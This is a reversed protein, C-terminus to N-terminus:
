ILRRKIDRKFKHKEQYIELEYHIMFRARTFIMWAHRNYPREARRLFPFPNTKPTTVQSELSPARTSIQM